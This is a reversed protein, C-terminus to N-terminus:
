SLVLPKLCNLSLPQSLDDVWSTFYPENEQTQSRNWELVPDPEKHQVGDKYGGGWLVNYFVKTGLLPFGPSTNDLARTGLSM